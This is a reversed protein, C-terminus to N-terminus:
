QKRKGLVTRPLWKPHQTLFLFAAGSLFAMMGTLLVIKGMGNDKEAISGVMQEEVEAIGRDQPLIRFFGNAFAGFGWSSESFIDFQYYGPDSVKSSFSLELMEGPDVIQYVREGRLIFEQNKAIKDLSGSCQRLDNEDYGKGEQTALRDGLAECFKIQWIEMWYYDGVPDNTPNRLWVKAEFLDGAKYTLPPKLYGSPLGVWLGNELNGRSYGASVFDPFRFLILSIVSSVILFATLRM